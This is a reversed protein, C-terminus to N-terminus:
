FLDEESFSQSKKSYETVRSHFFDTSNNGLVQEDFWVTKSLLEKDVDFIPDYGIEKLSDNMRNKIFEKLLESNLKESKYGNVIWEVIQLEYKVAEKAESLIKNKLEEDFLEPHEKRISNIIKMGIMAHLCNGAIFTKGDLRTVIAGSPVSVCYVKGEYSSVEKKMGHSIPYNELKRMGLKYCPKDEYGQKINAYFNTVYGAFIAITQVKDLCNKNTSCYGCGWETKYGDWEIIESIFDQCWEINKDKIDIWDFTKYDFDHNFHIRYVIKNNKNPASKTYEINAKELIWELREVKRPRSITITHTFGGNKGRILKNGAKNTGYCNSGDAQIAIKLRDEYSLSHDGDNNLLGFNPMLVQKHLKLNAATKKRFNGKHDFFVMDHNPTVSCKNGARSFTIINGKYNKEIKNKVTTFELLGEPTFQVVEDNEKIDRFDVWGNPTLVETGEVFCEERSTYEVQKNTDKLLNKYRGFYSITYFQSFLAINEVFLTFLILSYVFQKKNDNHFKHLHKRLYNVRGKIIDLELIKDFADDIGLVELLREYADGHIVETNAMVYGMDNLSPHPLNDGLKAWFKKVSIELQGITALARIVIEREQETLTVRFDQTDSSFTFEKDTWFGHHMASIFDQTWPYHDPKRSIQEEFIM